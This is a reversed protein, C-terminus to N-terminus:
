VVDGWAVKKARKYAAKDRAPVVPRTLGEASCLKMGVGIKSVEPPALVRAVARASEAERAVVLYSYPEDEFPVTAGKAHMHARSRQVREKFHCWDSGTMPCAAHHTCPAVIVGGQGLLLERAVRMRAFGEPTGPEILVLMQGAAAWLRVVVDRVAAVPLEVLVYSALVVDRSPGAWQTVNERRVTAGELAPMGSAANMAQLVDAFAASSEVQEVASLSPWQALAAWGATGPGAGIDALSVPAFGPRLAAVEEMVRANVAYTAPLRAALYAALDVGGSGKGKHYTASLAATRAGLGQRRGELWSDVAADLEGPFRM